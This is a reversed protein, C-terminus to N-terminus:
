SAASAPEGETERAIIAQRLGEYGEFERDWKRQLGIIFETMAPVDGRGVAQVAQDIETTAVDIHTIAEPVMPVRIRNGFSV